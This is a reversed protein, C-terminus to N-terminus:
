PARREAGVLDRGARIEELLRELAATTGSDRIVFDRLLCALLRYFPEETSALIQKSFRPIWQVLHDGLFTKERQLITATAEADGHQWAEAEERVLCAMFLLETTVHDPLDKFAPSLRFGAEGYRKLVELTSPGMLTWGPELYISAYPPAPLRYPGVFLRHYEGKLTIFRRDVAELIEKGEPPPWAFEKGLWQLPRLLKAELTQHFAESPPSFALALGEYASGRLRALAEAKIM